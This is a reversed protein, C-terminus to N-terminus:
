VQPPNPSISMGNKAPAKALGVCQLHFWERPCDDADCGVMEGYSVGNCYCYRPENEGDEDDDDQMSSGEEDRVAEAAALQAALGAGKKHSRKVPPDAARVITRPKAQEGFSAAHPTPNASPQKSGGGRTSISAPREARSRGGNPAEPDEKKANRDGNNKSNAVLGGRCGGPNDKATADEASGEGKLNSGEKSSTKAEASRNTAIAIKEIDISPRQSGSVAGNGNKHNTSASRDRSMQTVNQLSSQRARFSPIRQMAAPAPSKRQRDKSSTAFTGM